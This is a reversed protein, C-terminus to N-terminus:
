EKPHPACIPTTLSSMAVHRKLVRMHWTSMTHSHAGTGHNAATGAHAVASRSMEDSQALQMTSSSSPLHMPTGNLMPIMYQRLVSIADLNPPAHPSAAM